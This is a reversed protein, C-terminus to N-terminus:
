ETMLKDRYPIDFLIRHYDLVRHENFLKETLRVVPHNLLKDSIGNENIFRAWEFTDHVVDTDIVSPVLVEAIRMVPDDKYKAGIENPSCNEYGDIDCSLMSDIKMFDDADDRTLTLTLDGKADPITIYEAIELEYPMGNFHAALTFMQSLYASTKEVKDENMFCLPNYEVCEWKIKGQETLDAIRKLTEREEERWVEDTM